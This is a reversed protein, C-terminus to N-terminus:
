LREEMRGEKVERQTGANHVITVRQPRLTKTLDHGPILQDSHPPKMPVCKWKLETVNECMVM